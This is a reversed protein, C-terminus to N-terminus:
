ARSPLEVTAAGPATIEGRQNEAWIECDVLKRGEVERKGTVRGRCHQLDGMINFRRLEVRLSRLFGDDGMWNTMLHGMWAIREGGMDYGAPVGVSRAFQDNWHVVIPFEPSNTPPTKVMLARNKKWMDVAMKHVFTFTGGGVAILHNIESTVTLPGKLVPALEEGVEVDEWFRPESGRRREASYMDFIEEIEGDSWVKPEITSLYKGKETAAGRAGRMVSRHQVAVLVEDSARRYELDVRQLVQSGAMNGQKVELSVPIATTLIRDGDRLPEHFQWDSGAWWAHIGPFGSSMSLRDAAMSSVFLPSAIYGGWRTGAGYEGDFFLPNDDGLSRAFHYANDATVQTHWPRDDSRMPVNLRRQADAMMEETIGRPGHVQAATM